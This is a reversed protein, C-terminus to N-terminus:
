TWDEIKLNDIRSFEKTNNTVLITNHALATAAIVMDNPGIIQGKRELETRILAYARAAQQDFSIIRYPSLFLAITELNSKHKKSKEAGYLLEAVVMSPILVEDAPMAKLRDTLIDAVQNLHFICTNTDLSYKM